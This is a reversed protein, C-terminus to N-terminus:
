SRSQTHTHTHTQEISVATHTHVQIPLGLHLACIGLLPAGYASQYFIYAFSVICVHTDWNVHM